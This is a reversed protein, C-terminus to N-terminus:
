FIVGFSFANLKPNDVKNTSFLENLDYNFFFDTSRIGLQVRVGYRFNNLYFNDRNKDKERGGDSYVQKSHSGLRYGAYPGAGIRFSSGYANWMRTKKGRGGFDLMPIFSINAYTGTLKSKIFNADRPDESFQVGDETKSLLINDKQFKFNYWSLGAGWEIFLKGGVHTHQVSNIGVYWSGWPRVAYLENNDDPFKGENLYNNVGLDFNISHRSRRAYRISREKRWQEDNDDNDWTIVEYERRIEPQQTVPEQVPETQTETPKSEIRNLIDTFLAQFDYQRLTPLDKRDKITFVVRSTKALEVVVTDPKQQAHATLMLGLTILTLFFTKM